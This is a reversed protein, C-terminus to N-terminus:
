MREPATIGLVYLGHALIHKTASSLMVYYRSTDVSEENVIQVRAYMNNFVRTLLLLHQIVHQPGLDTFTKELVEKYGIIV